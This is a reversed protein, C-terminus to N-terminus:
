RDATAERPAEGQFVLIKAGESTCTILIQTLISFVLSPTFCSMIVLSRYHKSLQAVIVSGNFDSLVNRSVHLLGLQWFTPLM